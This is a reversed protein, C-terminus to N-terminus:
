QFAPMPMFRAYFVFIDSSAAVQKYLFRFLVQFEIIDFDSFRQTDSIKLQYYHVFSTKMDQEFFGNVSSLLFDMLAVPRNRGVFKYPLQCGKRQIGPYNVQLVWEPPSPHINVKKVAFILNNLDVTNLSLINLCGKQSFMHQITYFALINM